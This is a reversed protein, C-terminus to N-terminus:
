GWNLCYPSGSANTSGYVRWNGGGTIPMANVNMAVRDRTGGSGYLYMWASGPPTIETAGTTVATIWGYQAGCGRVGTHVAASAATPLAFVLLLAGITSMTAISKRRTRGTM